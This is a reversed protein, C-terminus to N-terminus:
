ARVGQPTAAVRGAGGGLYGLVSGRGFARGRFGSGALPGGNRKVGGAGAGSGVVPALVGMADSVPLSRGPYFSIWHGVAGCGWCRYPPRGVPRSGGGDHCDRRLHGPKGCDFCVMGGAVLKRVPASGKAPAPGRRVGRGGAAIALQAGFKRAGVVVGSKVVMGVAVADRVELRVALKSWVRSVLLPGRHGWAM